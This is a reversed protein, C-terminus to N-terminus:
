RGTLLRALVCRVRSYLVDDAVDAVRTCHVHQVHNTGATDGKWAKVFAFDGRIAEEMIFRPSFHINESSTRLVLAHLPRHASEATSCARNVPSPLSQWAAMPTTSSPSAARSSSPAREQQLYVTSHNLVDCCSHAHTHENGTPTFFAPIGAGGARLREALTGQPTLEVELEGRLYM